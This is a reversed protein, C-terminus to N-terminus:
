FPIPQQEVPKIQEVPVGRAEIAEALQYSIYGWMEVQFKLVAQLSELTLLGVFFKNISVNNFWKPNDVILKNLQQAFYHSQYIKESEVYAPTSPYDKFLKYAGQIWKDVLFEVPLLYYMKPNNQGVVLTCPNYELMQIFKDAMRKNVFEKDILHRFQEPIINTSFQYYSTTESDLEIVSVIDPMIKPFYKQAIEFLKTDEEDRNSAKIELPEIILRLFCSDDIKSRIAPRLNAIMKCHNEFNNTYINAAYASSKIFISCMDETSIANAIYDQMNSLQQISIHSYEANHNKLLEGIQSLINPKIKDPIEEINKLPDIAVFHLYDDEDIYPKIYEPLPNSDIKYRTSIVVGWYSAARKIDEENLQMEPIINSFLGPRTKYAEKLAQCVELWDQEGTFQEPVSAYITKVLDPDPNDHVFHNIYLRIKAGDVNKIEGSECMMAVIPSLLINFDKEFPINLGQDILAKFVPALEKAGASDIKQDNAFKCQESRIGFLVYPQSNKMIVHVPNDPGIKYSAFTEKHKICWQVNEGCLVPKAKDYDTIELVQYPGQELLIKLGSSDLSPDAQQVTKYKKSQYEGYTKMANQLDSFAKFSNIDKHDPQLEKARRYKDYAGLTKYLKEADEFHGDPSFRLEINNNKNGWIIIKAIWDLYSTALRKDPNPDQKAIESLQRITVGFKNYRLFTNDIIKDINKSSLKLLIYSAIRLM